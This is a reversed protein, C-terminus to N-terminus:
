RIVELPAGANRRYLLLSYSYFDEDTLGLLASKGRFEGDTRILAVVKGNGYFQLKFHELKFEQKRDLDNKLEKALKKSDEPGDMYLSEANELQRAYYKEALGKFNKIKYDRIIDNYFAVVEKKLLNPDEHQLDAVHQWGSLQYPVEADFSVMYEKLPYNDDEDAQYNKELVVTEIKKESRVIRVKISYAKSLTPALGFDSGTKPLLTINLIQKGSQLLLTNIPLSVSQLSGANFDTYVPMDNVKAIYSCDNSHISLWYEPQDEYHPIEKYLSDLKTQERQQANSSGTLLIFVFSM